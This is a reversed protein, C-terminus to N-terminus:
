DAAVIWGGDVVLEAGQVYSADDSALFAAAAAIEDPEGFRGLPMRAARAANTQADFQALSAQTGVVGPLITNVRIRDPSLEIAAGRSLGLVGAKVASYGISGAYSRLAAISSINVIAGRGRRRMQPVAAQMTWVLGKLCVAIMRDLTVEDTDELRPFRIWAANNVLVGVPEGFDREVAEFAQAVAVRDGVDVVYPRADVGRAALAAAAPGTRTASADLCALRAGEAAFREAIAAGIGRAAGTVACVVGQLRGDM